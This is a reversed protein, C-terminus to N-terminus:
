QVERRLTESPLEGFTDRYIAAFRGLHLFGLRTAVEAVTTSDHARRQLQQRVSSLRVDRVYTMPPVGAHRVFGEQLARVSIHVSSALGVVTWPDGPRAQILEIAEQVASGSGTSGHREVDDTFNHRHGLLLGDIVLGELHLGANGEYLGTPRDHEMQLLSLARHWPQIRPGKLPMEFNFELRNVVKRGILRELEVEIVQRPVMLPLQVCDHSLIIDASTGPQFVVSEGPRTALSSSSGARSTARGRVTVNIHFNRAKGTRIRTGRSFSVRGATLAGPHVVSLSMDFPGGDRRLDLNLPRYLTGLWAEAEDVSQTQRMIPAEGATSTPAIAMREDKAKLIQGTAFRIPGLRHAGVFCRSSM